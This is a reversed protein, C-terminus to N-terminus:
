TEESPAASAILMAGSTRLGRSLDATDPLTETYGSATSEVDPAASAILMAGSTPLGWVFFAAGGAELIVDPTMAGVDARDRICCCSARGTTELLAGTPPADAELGTEAGGRVSDVTSATNLLRKPTAVEVADDLSLGALGAGDDPLSPGLAACGGRGVRLLRAGGDYHLQTSVQFPLFCSGHACLM